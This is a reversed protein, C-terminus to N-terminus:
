RASSGPPAGPAQRRVGDQLPAADVAQNQLEDPGHQGGARGGGATVLALLEDRFQEPPGADVRDLGSCWAAAARVVALM